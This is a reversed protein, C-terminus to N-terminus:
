DCIRWNPPTLEPIEWKAGCRHCTEMDPRRLNGCNQCTILVEKHRTLRYTIYAPLGFLITGAIWFSTARKSLGTLKADKRIRWALWGSLILSWSMWPLANLPREFFGYDTSRGMMGPFSNPLIFIARHGATAEFCDACLYSAVEFVPPQLNELVLEVGAWIPAFPVGVYIAEALPKKDGQSDARYIMRGNPDFATATFSTGERSVSAVYTGIYRIDVIRGTNKLADKKILVEYVPEIKYALLDSPNASEIPRQLSFLSKPIPLYGANVLSQKESDLLYIRGSKDLVTTYRRPSDSISWYDWEENPENSQPLFQKQSKWEGNADKAEPNRWSLGITYNGKEIIGMAVPERRDDKALELEAKVNSNIFDILYFRRQRGDYLKIRERNYSAAVIPQEFRGLSESAKDSIGNPGAFFDRPITITEGSMSKGTFVQHRIFLGSQNNFFLYDTRFDNRETGFDYWYYIGTKTTYPKKISNFYVNGAMAEFGSRTNISTHVSSFRSIADNYTKQSQLQAVPEEQLLGSPSILLARWGWPMLDVLESQCITRAWFLALCFL